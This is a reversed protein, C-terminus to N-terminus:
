DELYKIVVNNKCKCNQSILVELTGIFNRIEYEIWETKEANM